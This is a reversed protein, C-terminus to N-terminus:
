GIAALEQDIVGFVIEVYKTITMNEPRGSPDNKVSEDACRLINQIQVDEFSVLGLYHYKGLEVALDEWEKLGSASGVSTIDITTGNSRLLRFIIAASGGWKENKPDRNEHSCCLYHEITRLTKEQCFIKCKRRFDSNPFSKGVEETFTFEQGAQVWNQDCFVARRDPAQTCNRQIMIELVRDSAGIFVRKVGSFGESTLVSHFYKTPGYANIETIPLTNKTAKKM